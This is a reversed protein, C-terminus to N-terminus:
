GLERIRKNLELLEKDLSSIGSESVESIEKFHEVKVKEKQRNQKILKDKMNKPLDSDPMRDDLRLIISEMSSVQKFLQSLLRKKASRVAALRTINKQLIILAAKCRLLEAKNAKYEANEFSVYVQREEM